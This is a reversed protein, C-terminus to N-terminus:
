RDHDASSDKSKEFCFSLRNVFCITYEDVYLVDVLNKRPQGALFDPHHRTSVAFIIMTTYRIQIRDVTQDPSDDVSNSLNPSFHHGKHNDTIILSKM